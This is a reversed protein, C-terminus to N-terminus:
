PLKEVEGEGHIEAYKDLLHGALWPDPQVMVLQSRQGRDTLPLIPTPYPVLLRGETLLPLFTPWGDYISVVCLFSKGVSWVDGAAASHEPDALTVSLAELLEAPEGHEEEEDVDPLLSKLMADLEGDISLSAVLTALADTDTDALAGIPDLTALVLREEDETLDVYTVPVTPEGREVALEVRVHGDVLNGTQVNKIVQTVWGVEQLVESLANRQAGPHRRWNAPNARLERPDEEATGVIRSRWPESASV